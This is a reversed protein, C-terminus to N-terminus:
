YTQQFDIEAYNEPICTSNVITMLDLECFNIVMMKHKAMILQKQSNLQYSKRNESTCMCDPDNWAQASLNFERFQSRLMALETREMM